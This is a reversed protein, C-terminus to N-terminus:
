NVKIHVGVTYESKFIQINKFFFLITKLANVMQQQDICEQIHQHKFGRLYKDNVAGGDNTERSLCFM